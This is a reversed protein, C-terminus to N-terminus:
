LGLEVAKRIAELRSTAGLKRYINKTHYHVTNLSIMLESAIEPGSLDSKLYRLIELERNSLTEANHPQPVANKKSGEPEIQQTLEELMAIWYKSHVEQAIQLAMEAKQRALVPNGLLFAVKALDTNSWVIGALTGVNKFLRESKELYPQAEAHRGELMLTEGINFLSWGEKVKEKTAKGRELSTRFAEIAEHYNHQSQRALGIRMTVWYFDDLSPCVGMAEEFNASATDFDGLDESIAGLLVLSAATAQPDHTLKGGDLCRQANSTIEEFSELREVYIRLDYWSLLSLAWAPQPMEAGRPALGESAQRCLAEGEHFRSRMDCFAYVAPVMSQVSAFDRNRVLWTWANSINDFEIQIEDLAGTQDGGKISKERQFIFNCYYGAHNAQTLKLEGQVVLEEEAYQRLLQHLEYRGSEPDRSLLSKNALSILIQLDAGAIHIAAALDFGNRFVSLKRLVSRQHEDLRQYSSDFIARISSHRNDVDSYGQSLFDLNNEIQKLIDNPSYYEMWAAALLIALANGGVMRCVDSITKVEESNPFFGPRSRATKQLFLQIADSQEVTHIDKQPILELGSLHFLTEIELGIKERSTVLIKVQPAAELIERLIYAESSLNELNDLILLMRKSGLFDLIAQALNEGPLLYVGLAGSIAPLFDDASNLQALSVFIVGDMFQPELARAVEIALRTKGVGGEGLISILPVGPNLVLDSVRVLEVKRGIFPTMNRPLM